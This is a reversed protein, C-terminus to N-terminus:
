LLTSTDLPRGRAYVLIYSALPRKINYEIKIAYCDESGVIYGQMLICNGLQYKDVIDFVVEDLNGTHLNRFILSVRDGVEKRLLDPFHNEDFTYFTGHGGLNKFDVRRVVSDPDRKEEIHILSALFREEGTSM